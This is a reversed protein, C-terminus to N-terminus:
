TSRTRASCASETSRVGRAVVSMVRAVSRANGHGNAAGIDARRWGPTNAVEAEVFPGTLTRVTPSDPPLAGFDIPLQPPPVVDAIRGWDREAAGIQFDAGLPGAIEDAVFQKLTKGSVRRVVEGVLHGYNLAHYGSATGPEWWPAQAAMRSTAKDWDYLDDVVAPQDLGSVGSAHSMLHRVLVDQKGAAGFEPWYAAVPADVDLQGRDALMLAALSTVTKTSSWV